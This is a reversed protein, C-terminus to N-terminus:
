RSSYRLPQNLKRELAKFGRMTPPADIRADHDAHAIYAVCHIHPVGRTQLEVRYVLGSQPFKRHFYLGFRNLTASFESPVGGDLLPKVFPSPPGVFNPSQQFDIDSSSPLTFTIGYLSSDPIDHSIVFARLRRRAARSFHTGAKRGPKLNALCIENAIGARAIMGYKYVSISPKRYVLIKREEIDHKKEKTNVLPATEHLINGM